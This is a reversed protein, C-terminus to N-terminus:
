RDNLIEDIKNNRIIILIDDHEECVQWFPDSISAKEKHFGCYYRESFYLSGTEKYYSCTSCTKNM